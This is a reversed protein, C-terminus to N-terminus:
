FPVLLCAWTQHSDDLTWSLQFLQYVSNESLSFLRTNLINERRKQCSEKKIGYFSLSPSPSIGFFNWSKMLCRVGWKKGNFRICKLSPGLWLIMSSTTCRLTTWFDLLWLQETKNKHFIERIHTKSVQVTQITSIAMVASRVREAVSSLKAAACHYSILLSVM